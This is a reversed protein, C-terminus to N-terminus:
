GCSIGGCDDHARVTMSRQFVELVKGERRVEIFVDFADLDDPNQAELGFERVEEPPMTFSASGILRNVKTTPAAPQRVIIKVQLSTNHTNELTLTGEATTSGMHLVPDVDTIELLDPKPTRFFLDSIILALQNFIRPHLYIENFGHGKPDEFVFDVGFRANHALVPPLSLQKVRAFSAATIIADEQITIHRGRAAIYSDPTAVATTSVFRKEYDSLERFALNAFLNGQSHAVMIVRRGNAVEERLVGALKDLVPADPALFGAARTIRLLAKNTPDDEDEYDYDEGAGFPDRSGRQYARIIQILSRKSGSRQAQRATEILDGLLGETPNYFYEFCLDAREEQELGMDFFVRKRLAIYSSIAHRPANGVGNVYLVKTRKPRDAIQARLTPHSFRLRSQFAADVFACSDVGDTTYSAGVLQMSFQEYAQLREITDTNLEELQRIAELADEESGFHSFACEIIHTLLEGNELSQESSDAQLLTDRYAAALRLLSMKQEEDGAFQANIFAQIDDRVGDGDLDAGGLGVGTPVTDTVGDEIAVGGCGTFLFISLIAVAVCFHYM